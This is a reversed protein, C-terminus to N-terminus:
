SYLDQGLVSSWVQQVMEFPPDNDTYTKIIEFIDEASLSFWESVIRKSAYKQHLIAELVAPKDHPILVMISFTPNMNQIQKMRRQWDNTMGIKFGGSLDYGIYVCDQIHGYFSDKEKKGM